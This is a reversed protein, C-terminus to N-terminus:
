KKLFSDEKINNPCGDKKWQLFKNYDLGNEEFVEREYTHPSFEFRQGMKMNEFLLLADEIFKEIMKDRTRYRTANVMAVNNTFRKSPYTNDKYAQYYNQPINWFPAIVNFMYACMNDGVAFYLYNCDVSESGGNQRFDKFDDWTMKEKSTTFTYYNEIIYFPYASAIKSYINDFVESGNDYFFPNHM